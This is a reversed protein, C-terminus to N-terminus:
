LGDQQIAANMAGLINVPRPAQASGLMVGLSSEVRAKRLRTRHVLEKVQWM